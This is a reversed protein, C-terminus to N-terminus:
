KEDRKTLSAVCLTPEVFPDLRAAQLSSGLEALLGRMLGLHVGCVVERHEVAAERFPCHRLLIQRSPGRGTEQPAFGIEELTDTLIRTARADGTAVPHPVQRALAHGWAEGATQAETGPRRSQTALYSTLIEALLRYSRPGAVPNDPRSTYLARPRGPVERREMSREALGASVLGDLHFRATNPHLGTKSAVEGSGVPHASHQLLELVLARSAGLSPVTPQDGRSLKKREV